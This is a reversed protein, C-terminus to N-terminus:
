KNQHQIYYNALVILVPTLIISLVAWAGVLRAQWIELKKVRGNTKDQKEMLIDHDTKNQDLRLNISEFKEEILKTVGHLREVIVDNGIVEGM